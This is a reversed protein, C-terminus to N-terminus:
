DDHYEILAGITGPTYDRATSSPVEKPLTPEDTWMPVIRCVTVGMLRALQYGFVECVSVHTLKLLARPFEPVAGEVLCLTTWGGTTREGGACEATDSTPARVITLPVPSPLKPRRGAKVASPTVGRCAVSAAPVITARPM